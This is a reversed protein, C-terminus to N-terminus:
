RRSKEEQVRNRTGDEKSNESGVLRGERDPVKLFTRGLSSRQRSGAYSVGGGRCAQFKTTQMLVERLVM